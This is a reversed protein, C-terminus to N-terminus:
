ELSRQRRADDMQRSARVWAATSESTEWGPTEVDRLSGVVRHAAQRLKVRRLKEMVAETVFQSRRRHGVVQDIANVIEAPIIIHARM